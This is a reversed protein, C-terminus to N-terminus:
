LNVIWRCRLVNFPELNIIRKCIHMFHHWRMQIKLYAHRSLLSFHEKNKSTSLGESQFQKSPGLFLLSFLTPSNSWDHISGKFVIIKFVQLYLHRKSASFNISKGPQSTRKCIIPAQNYELLVIEWHQNM